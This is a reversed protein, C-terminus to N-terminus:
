AAVTREGPPDPGPDYPRGDPKYWEAVTGKLCVGWGLEHVL